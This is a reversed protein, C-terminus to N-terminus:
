QLVKILGLIAAHAVAAARTNAQFKALIHKAHSKVTEPAIDLERAILKNSLGHCILNLVVHERPSLINASRFTSPSRERSVTETLLADTRRHRASGELNGKMGNVLMPALRNQERPTFGDSDALVSTAGIKKRDYPSNM